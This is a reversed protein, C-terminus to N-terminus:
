ALLSSNDIAFSYHFGATTDASSPDTVGTLSYTASQGVTGSSPGNLTATPAVNNITFSVTQTSGSVSGRATITVAQSQPGDLNGASWSWTGNVGNSTAVSVTGVNASLTFPEGADFFSGSNTVTSGENVSSSSAALSPPGFLFNAGFYGSVSTDLNVPFQLFSGSAWAATPFSIGNTGSISPSYAY